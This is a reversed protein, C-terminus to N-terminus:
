VSHSIYHSQAVASSEPSRLGVWSAVVLWDDLWLEVNKIKRAWFRLLVAISALAFVVITGAM